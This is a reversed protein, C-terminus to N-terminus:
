LESMIPRNAHITPRPRTSPQLGLAFYDTSYYQYKEGLQQCRVIYHLQQRCNPIIPAFGASLIDTTFVPFVVFLNKLYIYGM